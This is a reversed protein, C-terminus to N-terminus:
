LRVKYEARERTPSEFRWERVFWIKFRAHRAIAGCQSQLYEFISEAWKWSACM